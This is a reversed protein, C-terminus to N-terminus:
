AASAPLPSMAILLNAAEIYVPLEAMSLSAM